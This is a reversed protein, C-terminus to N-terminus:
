AGANDVTVNWDAGLRQQLLTQVLPSWPARSKTSVIWGETLSDGFAIVRMEKKNTDLVSATSDEYALLGRTANAWPLPLLLVLTCLVSWARLM